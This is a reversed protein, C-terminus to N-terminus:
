SKVDCKIPLKYNKLLYDHGKYIMETRRKKLMADRLSSHGGIGHVFKTEYLAVQWGNMWARLSYEIDFLIGPDGPKTYMESLKGIDEVCSRRLIMPSSAIVCSFSFRMGNCLGEVRKMAHPNESPEGVYLEPLLLLSDFKTGDKVGPWGIYGGLVCLKPFRSFLEVARESWNDEEGLVDDDQLLAFFEIDKDVQLYSGMILDMGFNYNRVEHMNNRGFVQGVTWLQTDSNDQMILIRGINSQSTITQTINPILFDHSSGFTQVIAAMNKTSSNEVRHNCAAQTTLGLCVNLSPSPALTPAFTPVFTPAFTPHPLRGFLNWSLSGFVFMSLLLIVFIILRSNRM